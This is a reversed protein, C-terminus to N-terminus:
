AFLACLCNSVSLANEGFLFISGVKALFIRCMKEAHYTRDKSIPFQVPFRRMNLPYNSKFQRKIGMPYDLHNIAVM